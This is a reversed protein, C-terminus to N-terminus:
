IIKLLMRLFVAADENLAAEENLSPPAEVDM